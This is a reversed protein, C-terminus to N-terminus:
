GLREEIVRIVHPSLSTWDASAVKTITIFDDAMFVSAVGEIAFLAAALPDNVSQAASYFSKSGKGEVVVRGTVFKGANPNPTPQFRVRATM